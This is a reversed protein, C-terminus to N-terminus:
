NFKYNNSFSNRNPSQFHGRYRDRSNDRQSYNSYRESNREHRKEHTKDKEESLHTMLRNMSECLTNVATETKNLRDTTQDTASIYKLGEEINKCNNILTDINPNHKHVIVAKIGPILGEIIYHRQDAFSTGPQLEEILLLKHTIYKAVNETTGQKRNLMEERLTINRDKPMHYQTFLDRLTTWDAISPTAKQIYLKYWNKADAELYGAFREVRNADTWGNIKTMQEYDEIFNLCDTSIEGTYKKFPGQASLQGSVVNQVSAEIQALTLPVRPTAM